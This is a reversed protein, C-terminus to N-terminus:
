RSTKKRKASPEAANELGRLEAMKNTALQIAEGLIDKEGVRVIAALKRRHAGPETAAEVIKVDQERTTPYQALRHQLAQYIATVSLEDRKRKDPISEPRAQRVARLFTAIQEELDAPLRKFEQEGQLQGTEDPGEMDRDLVFVDEIEEDELDNIAKGWTQEDLQLQEKLVLLVMDWPLEVVDYRMHKETVYGYRRLLDGNSLPGYYNYIEDGASIPRLSTVTLSNEEHNM